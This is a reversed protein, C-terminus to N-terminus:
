KRIELFSDPFVLDKEYGEVCEFVIESEFGYWWNNDTKHYEDDSIKINEGDYELFIILDSSGFSLLILDGQISYHGQLVSGKGLRTDTYKVNETWRDFEFTVTRQYYTNGTWTLVMKGDPRLAELEETPFLQKVGDGDNCSITLHPRVSYPDYVDKAILMPYMCEKYGLRDALNKELASVYEEHDTLSGGDLLIGYFRSYRSGSLPSMLCFAETGTDHIRLRDLIITEIGRILSNYTEVASLYSTCDSYDGHYPIIESYGISSVECREYRKVGLKIDYELISTSEPHDHDSFDTVIIKDYEFYMRISDNVIFAIEEYTLSRREGKERLSLSERIQDETFLRYIKEGNEGTEERGYAGFKKQLASQATPTEELISPLSMEDPDYKKTSEPPESLFHMCGGLLLASVLILLVTVVIFKKNNKM